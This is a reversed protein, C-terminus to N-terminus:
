LNLDHISILHLWLPSQMVKFTLTEHVSLCLKMEFCKIVSHCTKDYREYNLQTSICMIIMCHKTEM